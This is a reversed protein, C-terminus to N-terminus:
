CYTVFGDVASATHSSTAGNHTQSKKKRGLSKGDGVSENMMEELILM